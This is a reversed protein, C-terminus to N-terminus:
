ATVIPIAFLSTIEQESNLLRVTTVDVTLNWCALKKQASFWDQRTYKTFLGACHSLTLTHAHTCKM